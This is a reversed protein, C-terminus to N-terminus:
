LEGALLAEANRYCIQEYPIRSLGGSTHMRDLLDGIREAGRDLTEPSSIDTGFFFRDPFHELLTVSYAENDTMATYGSKASLDCYLNPYKGLLYEICRTGDSGDRVYGINTWFGPAHGIVKLKPFEALVRELGPLGPADIVGYGDRNTLHLLVPLRSKECSRFYALMRPDTIPLNTQVEGVGRAGREKYFDLYYTLDCEASNAAMRPDVYCFWAGVVDPYDEALSAAMRSTIPDHSHEASALTQLVGFRIGHRRYSDRVQEPTPWTGGRLREPGGPYATHMHLDIKMNTQM